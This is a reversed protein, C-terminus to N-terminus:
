DPLHAQEGGATEGNVFDRAAERALLRVLSVLRPDPKRAEAVRAVEADSTEIVLRVGTAVSDSPPFSYNDIFVAHHPTAPRLTAYDRALAAVRADCPQTDLFNRIPTM